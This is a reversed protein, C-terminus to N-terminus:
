GSARHHITRFGRERNLNTAKLEYVSAKISTENKRHGTEIYNTHIFRNDSYGFKYFLRGSRPFVYTIFDENM